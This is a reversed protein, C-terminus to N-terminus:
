RKAAARVELRECTEAVMAMTPRNKPKKELMSEVLQAVEPDVTPRFETVGMPARRELERAVYKVTTPESGRFVIPRMGTLWEFLVVGLSYVDARGDIAQGAAQEPAMYELTGEIFSPELTKSKHVLQAIGFDILVPRMGKADEVILINEPKVDRHVVGIEVHHLAGLAQAIKKIARLVDGIPASADRPLLKRLPRGDVFEQVVYTRGADDEGVAFVRAVGPHRVRSAAELEMRASQLVQNRTAVDYHGDLLLLKLAVIRDHEADFARWTEGYGGRGLLELWQYSRQSSDNLGVEHVRGREELLSEVLELSKMAERIDRLYRAYGDARARQLARRLCGEAQFRMKQAVLAKALMLLTPIELDPVDSEAFQRAASQLSPLAHPDNQRLLLEGRVGEVLAGLYQEGGGTLLHEAADLESAAENLRDSRVLALALDKRAFFELGSQGHERAYSLAERLRAESLALEGRELHLRGIDELMRGVGREDGEVRALELDAEFCELADDFRGARLHVRGMNGLSLATGLRDGLRTKAQISMAYYSLALDLQGNAAFVSGLTDRVQAIAERDGAARYLEIAALLERVSDRTRRLKGEALGLAHRAKARLRPGLSDDNALRSATDRARSIASRDRIDLFALEVEAAPGLEARSSELDARAERDRGVIMRAIGRWYLAIAGHADLEAAQAFKRAAVLSAFPEPANPEIVV